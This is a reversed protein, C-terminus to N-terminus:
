FINQIYIRFNDYCDPLDTMLGDNNFDYYYNNNIKSIQSINNIFKKLFIDIYINYNKKTFENLVDNSNIIKKLFSFYHHILFYLTNSPLIIKNDRYKKVELYKKEFPNIIINTKINGDLLIDCNYIDFTFNYQDFEKHIARVLLLANYVYYSTANNNCINLPIIHAADCYSSPMKSVVCSEYIDICDTRLKSQKYANRSMANALKYM